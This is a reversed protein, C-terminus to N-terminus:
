LTSGPAVVRRRRMKETSPANPAPVLGRRRRDQQLKIEDPTLAQRRRKKAVPETGPAVLKGRRGKKILDGTLNYDVTEPEPNPPTHKAEIARSRDLRNFHRSSDWNPGAFEAEKERTVDSRYQVYAVEEETMASIDVESQVIVYGRAGFVTAAPANFWWHILAAATLGDALAALRRDSDIYSNMTQLERYDPQLKGAMGTYTSEVLEFGGHRVGRFVEVGGVYPVKEHGRKMGRVPQVFLAKLGRYMAKYPRTAPEEPNGMPGVYAPEIAWTTSALVGGAICGLIARRLTKM